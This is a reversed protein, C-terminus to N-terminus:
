KAPMHRPTTEGKVYKGCTPCKGGVRSGSYARRVYREAVPEGTGKCEEYSSAASREAESDVIALGNRELLMRFNAGAASDIIPLKRGGFALHFGSTHDNRRGDTVTYTIRTLIAGDSRLGYRERYLTDGITRETTFTVIEHCGNARMTAM